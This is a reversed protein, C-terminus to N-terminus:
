RRRDHEHTESDGLVRCRRCRAPIGPRDDPGAHPPRPRPGRTTRPHLQNPPSRALPSRRMITPNPRCAHLALWWVLIMPRVPQPFGASPLECVCGQPPAFSCSEAGSNSPTTRSDQNEPGFPWHMRRVWNARSRPVGAQEGRLGALQPTRGAERRCLTPRRAPAPFGTRRHRLALARGGADHNATSEM